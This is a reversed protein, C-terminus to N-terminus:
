DKVVPPDAGQRDPDPIRFSYAAPRGFASSDKNTDEDNTDNLKRNNSDHFLNEQAYSGIAAPLWEDIKNEGKSPLWDISRKHWFDSGISCVDNLLPFAIM